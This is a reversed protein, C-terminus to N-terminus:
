AGSHGILPLKWRLDFWMSLLESKGNAMKLAAHTEIEGQKNDIDFSTNVTVHRFFFPDTPRYKIKNKEVWVVLICTQSDNHKILM